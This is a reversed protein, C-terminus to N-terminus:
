RLCIKRCGFRLWAFWSLLRWVASRRSVALLSGGTLPCSRLQHATLGAPAMAGVDSGNGQSARSWPRDQLPRARLKPPAAPAIPFPICCVRRGGCRTRETMWALGRHRLSGPIATTRPGGPMDAEPFVERAGVACGHGKSGVSARASARIGITNPESGSSCLWRRRTVGAGEQEAWRNRCMWWWGVSTSQVKVAWPFRPPGAAAGLGQGRGQLAGGM